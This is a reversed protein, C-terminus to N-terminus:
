KSNQQGNNSNQNKINTKMACSATFDAGPEV